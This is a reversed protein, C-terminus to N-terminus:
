YRQKDIYPLGVGDCKQAAILRRAPSVATHDCRSSELYSHVAHASYMQPLPEIGPAGAQQTFPRNRHHIPCSLSQPSPNLHRFMTDLFGIVCAPALTFVYLIICSSLFCWYSYAGSIKSASSLSHVLFSASVQRDVSM